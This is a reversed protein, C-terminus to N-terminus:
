KKRKSCLKGDQKANEIKIRACALNERAHRSVVKGKSKPEGAVGKLVAWRAGRKERWFKYNTKKRKAM